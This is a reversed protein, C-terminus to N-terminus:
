WGGPISFAEWFLVVVLSGSVVGLRDVPFFALVVFDMWSSINLVGGAAIVIGSISACMAAVRAASSVMGSCEGTLSLMPLVINGRVNARPWGVAGINFDQAVSPHGTSEPGFQDLLCIIVARWRPGWREARWGSAMSARRVSVFSFIVLPYARVTRHPSMLCCMGGRRLILGTAMTGCLDLFNRVM